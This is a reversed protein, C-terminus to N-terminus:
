YVHSPCVRLQVDHIYIPFLALAGSFTKGRPKPRLLSTDGAGYKNLLLNDPPLDADARSRSFFERKQCAVNRYIFHMLVSDVLLELLLHFFFRSGHNNVDNQLSRYSQKLYGRLFIM